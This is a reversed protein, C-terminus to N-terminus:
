SDASLPVPKGAQSGSGSLSSLRHRSEPRRLIALIRPFGRLSRRAGSQGVTAASPTRFNCVPVRRASPTQLGAKLRHRRLRNRRFAPSRVERPSGSCGTQLLAADGRSFKRVKKNDRRASTGCNAEPLMGPFSPFIMTFNTFIRAATATAVAARLRPAQALLGFGAGAGLLTPRCM